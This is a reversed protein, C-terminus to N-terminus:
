MIQFRFSFLNSTNKNRNLINVIFLDIPKVEDNKTYHSLAAVGGALKYENRIAHEISQVQHQYRPRTLVSILFSQYSTALIMGYALFSIFFIRFSSRQPTYSFSLAMTLSLTGLNAWFLNAPYNDWLAFRKFIYATLFVLAIIIIWIELTFLAFINLWKPILGAKQVCWTLDDQYYPISASLMRRTNPDEDLGGVMM